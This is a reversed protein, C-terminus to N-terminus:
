DSGLRSKLERYRRRLFDEHLGPGLCTEYVALALEYRGRKEAAESMTTIRQWARTGMARAMPVFNDFMQQREYLMGLMTLAKEAHYDLDLECLEQWQEQLISEVLPVEHAALGAFFIPGGTHTSAYDEWIMLEMLDQLLIELSMDLAARDLQTYKEFVQQCLTGVVGYSDDVLGMKETLVTVTARYLAFLEALSADAEKNEVFASLRRELELSRDKSYWSSTTYLSELPAAYEGPSTPFRHWYGRMARAERERRPTHVMWPSREDDRFDMELVKRRARRHQRLLLDPDAQALIDNATLGGRNLAQRLLRLHNLLEEAKYRRYSSGTKEARFHDGLRDWNGDFERALVDVMWLDWYTVKLSERADPPLIERYLDNGDQIDRRRRTAM